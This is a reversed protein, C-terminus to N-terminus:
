LIDFDIRPNPEGLDIFLPHNEEFFENCITAFANHVDCGCNSMTDTVDTTLASILTNINTINSSNHNNWNNITDEIVEKTANSYCEITWDKTGLSYMGCHNELFNNLASNLKDYAEQADSCSDYTKEFEKSLVDLLQSYNTISHQKMINAEEQLQLFNKLILDKTM